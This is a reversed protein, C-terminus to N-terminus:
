VRTPQKNISNHRVNDNHLFKTFNHFRLRPQARETTDVKDFALALHSPKRPWIILM